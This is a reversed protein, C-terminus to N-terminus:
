LQIKNSSLWSRFNFFELTLDLFYFVYEYGVSAALELGKHLVQKQPPIAGVLHYCQSLLSYARCKLEFCSPISKLLLQQLFFFFCLSIFRYAVFEFKFEFSTSVFPSSQCFTRPTVQRPQRQSFPSPSAHCHSSSDQGRRNPFVVRRKPMHSRPVESSERNGREERPVRRTGM